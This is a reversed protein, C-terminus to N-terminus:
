VVCGLEALEKDIPAIQKSVQKLVRSKLKKQLAIKRAYVHDRVRRRAELTKVVDQYKWGVEHGLRGLECYPRGPRLRMKRMASPVVHRRLKQYERPVGEVCRLNLMATGGRRTKHPLMGRIVRRLMMGPARFHFPGRAPNVNCRKRLYAMYKLKNRFFSGSINIGECRLVVVKDGSLLAKAVVAALRGLLHGSGDVVIARKKESM